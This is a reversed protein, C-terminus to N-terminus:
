LREREVKVIYLGTSVIVVGAVLGLILFLANAGAPPADVERATMGVLIQGPASATLLEVGIVGLMLSLSLFIFFKTYTESFM